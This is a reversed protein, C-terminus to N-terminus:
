WGVAGILAEILKAIGMSWRIRTRDPVTAKMFNNYHRNDLVITYNPDVAAWDLPSRHTLHYEVHSDVGDWSKRVTSGDKFQFLIPIDPYSGSRKTILVVTEYQGEERNLTTRISEVAFDAMRDSYVYQQFYAAWNQKTVQEVVHMFDATSPHRFKWKQYYTRMIRHMMKTGMQREIGTLVLKARIYVNEAYHEQNGFSWSLQKLPAPDTMYSSQIALNPQIGYELEMVKDEAYSAFGEDLWAEEFENTAVIGYWYQHAIEHVITRELEYGPNDKAAALGTILTPYEMGGAGEGGDPPIVISLTSYPYEGYWQSFRNLSVKAAHFYREIQPEHKPDVYLKIRVGPVYESSFPQEAYVFDPSAAWAFDHVDDAYFQYVKNDGRITAPKTPFGTAAVTYSAPVEIRVNYIGFNSYFESNGHYQHLNWGETKRGRVGAKEFAAVKPFWQGVMVFDGAYGMRAFVQPLKVEFSFRLTVSTGPQVSEPLRIRMLTQDDPNGDDPQVYSARPLLNTGDRTQISLLHIHGFDGDKMKDGRLSGGSERMFSTKKSQFANPYLHFYIDAIPKTGPNTWIVTQKGQLMHDPAHLRVDMHYEVMRNSLPVPVPPVAPESADAPELQSIESTNETLVALSSAHLDSRQLAESALSAVALSIILLLSLIPKSYRRIM